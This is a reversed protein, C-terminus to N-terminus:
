FLVHRPAYTRTFFAAEPIRNTEILLRICEQVNHMLFNAVFAVNFRGARGAKDALVKMGEVDGTSSHLLLLSSWDDAHTFCEEALHLDFDALALDGLQRWKQESEALLLVDRASKLDHLHLALEFKHEPDSSVQFAIEKLDQGDLFHALKNHQEKPIQSLTREASFFSFFFSDSLFLIGHIKSFL